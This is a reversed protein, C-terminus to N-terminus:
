FGGSGSGWAPRSRAAGAPGLWRPRGSSCRGPVLPGAAARRAGGLVPTRLRPPRPGRVWSVAVLWSETPGAAPRGRLGQPQPRPRRPGGSSSSFLGHWAARSTGAFFASEAFGPRRLCVFGFWVFVDPLRETVVPTAGEAAPPSTADQARSPRSRGRETLPVGARQDAPSQRPAAAPGEGPAARPRRAPPVPGGTPPADEGQRAGETRPQDPTPPPGM